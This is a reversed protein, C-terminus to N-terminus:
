QSCSECEEKEKAINTNKQITRIYYISKCGEKWALLFTDFIDKARINKNLGIFVGYICRSNDM